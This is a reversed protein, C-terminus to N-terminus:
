KKMVRVPVSLACGCSTTARTCCILSHEYNRVTSFHTSFKQLMQKIAAKVTEAQQIGMHYGTPKWLVGRPPATM